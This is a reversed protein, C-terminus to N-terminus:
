VDTNKILEEIGKLLKESYNQLVDLKPLKKLGEAHNPVFFYEFGKSNYYGNAIDIQNEEVLSTKVFDDLSYQKAKILARVLNHGLKEKIWSVNEGKALLFAKLELEISRCYLFYPVPSYKESNRWRKAALYYDEAYKHFGFPSIRIIAVEANLAYKKKM